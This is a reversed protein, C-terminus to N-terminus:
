GPHQLVLVILDEVCNGTLVPDFFGADFSWGQDDEIGAQGILRQFFEQLIQGLIHACRIDGTYREATM